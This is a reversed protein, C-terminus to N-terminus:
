VNWHAIGTVRRGREQLEERGISVVTEPHRLKCALRIENRVMGVSHPHIRLAGADKKALTCLITSCLVGLHKETNRHIPRLLKGAPNAGLLFGCDLVSTCDSAPLHKLPIGAHVAM